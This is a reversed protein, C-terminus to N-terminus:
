STRFRPMKDRSDSAEQFRPITSCKPPYAPFYAATKFYYVDCVVLSALFRPRHSRRAIQFGEELLKSVM